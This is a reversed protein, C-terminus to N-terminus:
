GNCPQWRKRWWHFGANGSARNHVQWPMGPPIYAFGGPMLLHDTGDITVCIEGGTVFLAHQVEPDDDPQDSGGGEALEVIYQSFTEAFGSLPRALVWMRMGTWGPLYSTVIDRMVSRPVIAYADTFVATDTTLGSQPPLGAVPGAYPGALQEQPPKAPNSSPAGELPLDTVSPAQEPLGAEKEISDYM